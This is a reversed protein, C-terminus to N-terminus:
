FFEKMLHHAHYLIRRRFALLRPPEVRSKLASNASFRPFKVLQGESTPSTVAHIKPQNKRSVKHDNIM